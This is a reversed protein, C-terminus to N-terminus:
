RDRQFIEAGPEACLCIEVLAQLEDDSLLELAECLDPDQKIVKARYEKLSAEDM